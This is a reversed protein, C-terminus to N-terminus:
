KSSLPGMQPSSQDCLGKMLREALQPKRPNEEATLCIGTSRHVAGQIMENDGKGNAVSTISAVTPVLPKQSPVWVPAPPVAVRVLLKKQGCGMAGHVAPFPFEISFVGEEGHQANRIFDHQLLTEM